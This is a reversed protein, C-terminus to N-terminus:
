GLSMGVSDSTESQRPKPLLGKGLIATVLLGLGSLVALLTLTGGLGIAKGIMPLFLTGM